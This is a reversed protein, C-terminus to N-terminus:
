IFGAALLNRKPKMKINVLFREGSYIEIGNMDGDAWCGEM